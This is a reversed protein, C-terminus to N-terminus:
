SDKSSDLCGTGGNAQVDPATPSLKSVERWLFFLSLESSDRFKDGAHPNGQRSRMM